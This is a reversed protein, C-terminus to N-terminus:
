GEPAWEEAQSVVEDVDFDNYGPVLDNTYLSSAEPVEAGDPVIGADVAYDVFEQVGADDYGGWSQSGAPDGHTVLRMRWDLINMDGALQDEESLDAGRTEPFEEWMIRLAAEPNTQTFLSGKAIARGFSVMVDENEELASPTMFFQTSFLSQADPHTFYKLEGGINEIPAYFADAMALGDIQGSELAQLAAPGLGVAVYEVDNEPDLGAKSLIANALPINGSGLSQVGLTTGEFDELSDIDSDELVALSAAPARVFNYTLVLAADPDGGAQTQIVPEPTGAGIDVQGALTATVAETSGSIFQLRVDLGEDTFYGMGVAAAVPAFSATMGGLPVGFTVNRLNQAQDSGSDDGSGDGSGDGGCASAALAAMAVVAAGVRRRRRPYMNRTTM